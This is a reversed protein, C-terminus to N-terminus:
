IKRCSFNLCDLFRVSHLIKMLLNKAKLRNQRHLIAARESILVSILTSVLGSLWAGMPTIPAHSDPRTDARIDARIDSLAAISCLCCFSWVVFKSM